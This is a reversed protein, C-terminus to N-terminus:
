LWAVIGDRSRGDQPGDPTFGSSACGKRDIQDRFAIISKLPHSGDIADVSDFSALTTKIWSEQAAVWREVIIVGAVM